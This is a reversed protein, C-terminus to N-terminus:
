YNFRIGRQRLDNALAEASTFHVADIGVAQAGAVHGATDDVFFLEEPRCGAMQAAAYFIVAEPKVAGIKYSLAHVGFAESLIRYERLCYEWHTECTNSLIGLPYGAQRLQAVIPLVPLNLGFIEAAAAALRDFDPRAGIATCFAEYFQRSSLRGSEHDHILRGDVVVSRVQAATAGAVVAMQALMREVSFNILVKGLDFYLFKPQM